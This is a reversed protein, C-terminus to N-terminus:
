RPKKPSLIKYLLPGTKTTIAAGAIFGPLGGAITGAGVVGTLVVVAGITSYLDPNSPLPPLAREMVQSAGWTGLTAGLVASLYIIGFDIRDIWNKLSFRESGKQTLIELGLLTPDEQIHPTEQGGTRPRANRSSEEVYDHLRPDTSVNLIPWFKREETGAPKTETSM